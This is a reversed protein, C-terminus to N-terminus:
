PCGPCFDSGTLEALHNQMRGSVARTKLGVHKSYKNVSVVSMLSKELKFGSKLM